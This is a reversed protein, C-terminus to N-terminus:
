NLNPVSVNWPAQRPRPLRPPAAVPRCAGGLGLAPAAGWARGPGPATHSGALRWPPARPSGWAAGPGVRCSPRPGGGVAARPCRARGELARCWCGHGLAGRQGPVAVQGRSRTCPGAASTCAPSGTGAPVRDEDPCGPGQSPAGLGARGWPRCPPPGTQAVENCGGAGAGSAGICPHVPAPVYSGPPFLM